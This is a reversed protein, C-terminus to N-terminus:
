LVVEKESNAPKPGTEIIEIKLTRLGDDGDSKGDNKENWGLSKLAFIAGTASQQHLKKEYAAEIRLRGRKLTHAFKGNGEYDDFAQRSNFGLFFAMGAITAPEPERDWVKQSAVTENKLEKAPETEFHFEGEVYNFYANIRAALEAAATFDPLHMNTIILIGIPM